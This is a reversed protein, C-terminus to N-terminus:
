EAAVDFRVGRVAPLGGVVVRVVAFLRMRQLSLGPLRVCDALYHM